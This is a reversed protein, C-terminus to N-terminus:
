YRQLAEAMLMQEGFPQSVYSCLYGCAFAYLESTLNKSRLHAYLSPDVSQLCRDLLKGIHFCPTLIDCLCRAFYIDSEGRLRPSRRVIDAACVDPLKDRHIHLFM